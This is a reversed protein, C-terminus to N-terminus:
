RPLGMTAEAGAARDRQYEAFARDIDAEALRRLEAPSRPKLDAAMDRIKAKQADLAADNVPEGRAVLAGVAALDCVTDFVRLRAQYQEETM